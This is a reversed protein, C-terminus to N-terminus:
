SFDGVSEFREFGRGVLAIDGAFRFQTRLALAIEREYAPAMIIVADIGQEALAQPPAVRLNSVPTFLGVKGPDSDVLLSVKRLDVVAMMSLGKGGAGWIAIKKGQSEWASLCESVDARLSDVRAVLSGYDPLTEWRVLARLSEGEQVPCVDLVEFGALQLALSLSRPNFYNIHEPIFDFFRGEDVLKDLNPVEVLGVAGSRLNARITLLFDRMDEVHEFVQRTVFADFPAARMKRGSSLTGSEVELGRACALARQASSPEVGFCRAGAEQMAHLFFGDGCGVELVSGGSLGFREVFERAQESQFKRAQPSSSPANVYDDYYDDSLQMPVSVFGCSPCRYATLDVAQDSALEDKRLLRHNWRPMGSLEVAAAIGVLGCLRCPLPTQM